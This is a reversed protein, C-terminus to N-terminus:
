SKKSLRRSALGMLGLAFIVLTSPEPVSTAAQRVLWSGAVPNAVHRYITSAQDFSSFGEAWEVRSIRGATPM